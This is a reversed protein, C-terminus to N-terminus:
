RLKIILHINIIRVLVITSQSILNICLFSLHKILFSTFTKILTVTLSIVINKLVLNTVM